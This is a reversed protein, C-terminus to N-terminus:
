DPTLNLGRREFERDAERLLEHIALCKKNAQDIAKLLSENGKFSTKTIAVYFILRTTQRLVLRCNRLFNDTLREPNDRRHNTLLTVAIEHAGLAFSLNGLDVTQQPDLTSSDFKGLTDNAEKLDRCAKALQDTTQALLLPTAALFLFGILFAVLSCAPLVARWRLANKMKM